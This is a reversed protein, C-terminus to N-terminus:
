AAPLQEQSAYLLQTDAKVVSDTHARALRRVEAEIVGEHHRRRGRPTTKLTPTRQAARPDPASAETM